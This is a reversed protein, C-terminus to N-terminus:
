IVIKRGNRIWNLFASARTTNQAMSNYRAEENGFKIAARGLKKSSVANNRMNRRHYDVYERGAGTRVANKMKERSLIAEDRLMRANRDAEVKGWLMESAKDKAQGIMQNKLKGTGKYIGYAALGALTVGAAIGIIKRATSKRREDAIKKEEASM